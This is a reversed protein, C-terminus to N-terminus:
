PRVLPIFPAITEEMACTDSKNENAWAIVGEFVAEEDV